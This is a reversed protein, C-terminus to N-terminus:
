RYGYTYSYDYYTQTGYKCAAYIVVTTRSGIAGAWITRATISASGNRVTAKGLVTRQDSDLFTCSSAKGGKPTARITFPVNWQIKAPLSIYNNLSPATPMKGYTKQNAKGMKMDVNVARIRLRQHKTNPVQFVFSNSTGTQNVLNIASNKWAGNDFQFMIKLPVSSRILSDWSGSINSIVSKAQCSLKSKPKESSNSCTVETNLVFKESKKVSDWDMYPIDTVEPAFKLTVKSTGVDNTWQSKNKVKYIVQIDMSLPAIEGGYGSAILIMYTNEPMELVECTGKQIGCDENDLLIQKELVVSDPPPNDIEFTFYRNVEQGRGVGKIEPTYPAYWPNYLPGTTSGIEESNSLIRLNVPLSEEGNYTIIPTPYYPHGEYTDFFLSSNGWGVEHSIQCKLGTPTIALTKVYVGEEYSRYGTRSGSDTSSNQGNSWVFSVNANRILEKCTANSMAPGGSFEVDFPAEGATTVIKATPFALITATMPATADARDAIPQIFILISAVMLLALVNNIPKV